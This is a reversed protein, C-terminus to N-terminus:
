CTAVAAAAAGVAVARPRLPAPSALVPRSGPRRPHAARDPGGPRPHGEDAPDGRPVQRRAQHGPQGRDDGPRRARHGVRGARRQADQPGRGAAHARDRHFPCRDLRAPHLPGAQGPAGAHQHAQHPRNWIRGAVQILEAGAAELKTAKDTISAATSTMSARLAPGTLTESGISLEADKAAADMANALNKLAAAKSQWDQGALLM